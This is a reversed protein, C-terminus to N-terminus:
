EQAAYQATKESLKLKWYCESAESKVIYNLPIMGTLSYVMSRKIIGMERMYTSVAKLEAEKKIDDVYSLVFDIQRIGDWFFISDKSQEDKKFQLPCSLCLKLNYNLKWIAFVYLPNALIHNDDVKKKLRFHCLFVVLTKM